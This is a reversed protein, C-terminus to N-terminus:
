LYEETSVVEVIKPEYYEHYLDDKENIEVLEYKPKRKRRKKVMRRQMRFYYITTLVMVIIISLLIIELIEM